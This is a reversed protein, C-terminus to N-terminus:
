MSLLTQLHAYAYAKVDPYFAKYCKHLSTYNQQFLDFVQVSSTLYAARRAVGGFSNKMGSVTQYNYLWNQSVMYPLMQRFPLPLLEEAATLVVYTNLATQQLSVAKFENVDNALFHDYIVDVFAGSYAGVAPKLFVKAEKTAPHFDTFTDIARHLMIGNQIGPSYDFKKKGKVFDSIMNGVLIDPQNFSLCAHALFNM